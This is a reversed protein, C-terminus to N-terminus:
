RCGCRVKSSLSVRLSGQSPRCIHWAHSMGEWMVYRDKFAQPLIDHLSKPMQQEMMGEELGDVTVLSGEYKPARRTVLNLNLVASCTFTLV